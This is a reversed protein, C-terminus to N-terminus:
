NPPHGFHAEPRECNVMYELYERSQGLRIEGKWHTVAAKSIGFTQM